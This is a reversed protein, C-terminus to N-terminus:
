RVAKNKVRNLVFLVGAVVLIVLGIYLLFKVAEVILGLVLLVIAVVILVSFLPKMREM